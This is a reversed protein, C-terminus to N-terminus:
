KTLNIVAFGVLFNPSEENTKSDREKLDENSKDKNSNKADNSRNTYKKRKINIWRRRLM